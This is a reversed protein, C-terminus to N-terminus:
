GVASCAYVQGLKLVANLISYNVGLLHELPGESRINSSPHKCIELGALVLELLQIVVVREFLSVQCLANTARLHLQDLCKM